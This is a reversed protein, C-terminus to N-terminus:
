RDPTSVSLPTSLAPPAPAPDPLPAQPPGPEALWLLWLLDSVQFPWPFPPPGALWARRARAVWDAAAGADGSCHAAVAAAPWWFGAPDVNRAAWHREPTHWAAAARQWAARDRTVQAPDRGAPGWLLPWAQAMSDPYWRALRTAPGNLSVRWLGASGDWLSRQLADQTRQAQHRSVAAGAADGWAEAQLQALARWGAAVEVADMLYAVPHDAKAWSLGETQQLTALTAAAVDFAARLAPERLLAADGGHRLYAQAMLFFSALTSDVADIQRCHRADIDAPCASQQSGDALVWRDHLVGRDPGSLPLQAAQWRLWDAAERRMTADVRLAGIFGLNAEYAAVHHWTRGRRDVHAAGLSRRVAGHTARGPARVVLRRMTLVAADRFAPDVLNGAPCASDIPPAALAAPPDQALASGAWAALLVAGIARAAHVLPHRVRM